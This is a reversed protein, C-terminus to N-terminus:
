PNVQINGYEINWLGWYDPLTNCDYYPWYPPQINNECMTLLTMQDPNSSGEGNDIVRFVVETGVPFLEVNSSTVTGSMTANNGDKVLMCDIDFQIKGEAGPQPHIHIGSGEVNGNPKTMAHFSFIRLDGPSQYFAGQGQASPTNGSKFATQFSNLDKNLNDDKTCNGLIFLLGAAVVLLYLHLNKTKM